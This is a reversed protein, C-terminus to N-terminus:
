TNKALYDNSHQGCHNPIGMNPPSLIGPVWKYLKGCGPYTCVYVQDDLTALIMQRLILAFKIRGLGNTGGLERATLYDDLAALCLDIKRGTHLNM